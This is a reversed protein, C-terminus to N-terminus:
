VRQIPLYRTFAVHDHFAASVEFSGPRGPGQDNGNVIVKPFAEEIADAIEIFAEVDEPDYEITIVKPPARGLGSAPLSLDLPLLWDM